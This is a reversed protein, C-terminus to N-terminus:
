LALLQQLLQCIAALVLMCVMVGFAEQDHHQLSAAPLRAPLRQPANTGVVTTGTVSSSSLSPSPAGSRAVPVASSPVATASPAQFLDFAVATVHEADV